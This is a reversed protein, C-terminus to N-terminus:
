PTILYDNNNIKLSLPMKLKSNVKCKFYRLPENEDFSVEEFKIKDNLLIELEPTHNAVYPIKNSWYTSILYLYSKKIFYDFIITINNSDKIENM